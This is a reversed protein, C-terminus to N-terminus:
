PGSRGKEGADYAGAAVASVFLKLEAGTVKYRGNAFEPRGARLAGGKIWRRVTQPTCHFLRALQWTGFIECDGIEELATERWKPKKADVPPIKRGCRAM